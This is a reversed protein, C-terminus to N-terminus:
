LAELESVMQTLEQLAENREHIWQNTRELDALTKLSNSKLLGGLTIVRARLKEIREALERAAQSRRLVEEQLQNNIQHMHNHSPLQVLSRVITPLNVAAAVSAVATLVDLLAYLRYPAWSFVVMDSLHTLGCLVIYVIFLLFIYAGPFNTKKKVYLVGLAIPIMMYTLAITLHATQDVTILWPTWGPGCQNRTVFPSADFFWPM